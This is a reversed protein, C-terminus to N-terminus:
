ARTRRRDGVVAFTCAKALQQEISDPGDDSSRSAVGVSTAAALVVVEVPKLVSVRGASMAVAFKTRRRGRWSRGRISARIPVTARDGM